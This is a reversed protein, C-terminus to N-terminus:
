DVDLVAFKADTTAFDLNLHAGPPVQVVNIAGPAPRQVSTVISEIAPALAATAAKADSAVESKVENPRAAASDM